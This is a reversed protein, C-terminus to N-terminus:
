RVSRWSDWLLKLLRIRGIQHRVTSWIARQKVKKPVGDVTLMERAAHAALRPVTSFLEHHRLRFRGFRRYKKLDRLVYSEELRRVYGSLIDRSVDGRGLAEIITEAALRGSAMAMNSGERHLANFLMGSDGAILYGPGCLQPLTDYGGEAIWHALYETPQGDKILPAVMPHQKFDELMQYFGETMKEGTPPVHVDDLRKYMERLHDLEDLTYGHKQLLARLSEERDTTFDGSIYELVLMEITDDKM